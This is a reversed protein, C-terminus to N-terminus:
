IQVLDADQVQWNTAVLQSFHASNANFDGTLTGLWNTMQGGDERWLLDDIGDGNFDGTSVVQWNTAVFESFNVSNQSFSGDEHGLWNTMQGGNERWLIDDYGDGNFDGTAIVNWNTVVFESFSLSNQTFSGDAQGIWDTMQGGNERWLLDTIGDGNFDGTAIVKWNTAVHESYTGHTFTGNATGLWDTLQGTSQRWLIDGNGDGNFDGVGIVTWDNAVSVTAAGNTNYGGNANALWNTLLGNDNRWLIDERGDANFDGTGAVHWDTSVNAFANAGNATFSGDSKAIWNTLQGNQDRWLIDSLGDANFDNDANAQLRLEYGSGFTRVVFRGGHSLGDVTVSQGSGFSLVNGILSFNATSLDSIQIRDGIGMNTIHDGNMEAVTGRYSDAGTGGILTDIGAQGLLVDNGAGGDITDNGGRGELFDNGGLGSINDAEDSGIKIDSGETGIITAM